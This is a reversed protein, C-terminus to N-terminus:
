ERWDAIFLNTERPESGLRNSAWVLRAGDPSFMPFGDFDPTETIRELGSGDLGIMWLDFERGEPDHHNSSFIIRDGDPHWFPAFSAAGLDTVRRIRGGDSDMVHIELLSPKVLHRALFDRFEDVAATTSPRSARFVIRQGDPSFFPGGDYGVEFTLRTLGSGDSQIRYIELDADRDSTFVISRGDPGVTAEADYGPAHTLRTREGTALDQVFIDYAPHLPWVYGQSRDPPPPCDPDGLHTSAYLIRADDELWYACTTVGEGGSLMQEGDGDAQIVYIADCTRGPRTAQFVLRTSDSSFYAEANQGGFTLQRVNVLHPEPACALGISAALMLITRHM